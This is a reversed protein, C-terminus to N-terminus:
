RREEVHFAREALLAAVHRTLRFRKALYRERACRADRSAVNAIDTPFKSAPYEVQPIKQFM